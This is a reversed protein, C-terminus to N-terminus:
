LKFQRIKSVLYREMLYKIWEKQQDSVANRELINFYREYTLGDLTEKGKDTLFKAPYEKMADAFHENGSPYLTISHFQAYKEEKAFHVALLHNRWVQRFCNQELDKDDSNLYYEGRSCDHYRPYNQTETNGPSYGGETYKVEIGLFGKKVAETLYEIFADFSTNDRLPNDERKPFEFEICQIELINLNLLENFVIRCLEKEQLFPVFFNFPIHQSRLTDYFWEPTDPKNHRFEVRVYRFIDYGDFFIKGAGAAEPNLWQAQARCQKNEILAQNESKFYKLQHNKALNKFSEKQM